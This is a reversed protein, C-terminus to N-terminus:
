LMYLRILGCAKPSYNTILEWDKAIVPHHVTVWGSHYGTGHAAMPLHASLGPWQAALALMVELSADKLQCSRIFEEEEWLQSKGLFQFFIALSKVEGSGRIPFRDASMKSDIRPIGAGRVMDEWSRNYDVTVPVFVLEISAELSYSIVIKGGNKPIEEKTQQLNRIQQVCTESVRPM